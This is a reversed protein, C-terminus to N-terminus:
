EYCSPSRAPPCLSTGFQHEDQEVSGLPSSGAQSVGPVAWLSGLAAWTASGPGAAAGALHYPCGQPEVEEDWASKPLIHAPPNPVGSQEEEAVFTGKCNTDDGAWSCCHPWAPASMLSLRLDGVGLISCKPSPPLLCHGPCFDPTCTGRSLWKADAAPFHCRLSVPPDQGWRTPAMCIPDYWFGSLSILCLGLRAVARNKPRHLHLSSLLPPAPCSHSHFVFLRWASTPLLARGRAPHARPERCCRSRWGRGWLQPVM